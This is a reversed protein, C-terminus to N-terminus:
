VVLGTNRTLANRLKSSSGGKTFQMLIFLVVGAIVETHAVGLFELCHRIECIRMTVLYNVVSNFSDCACRIADAM